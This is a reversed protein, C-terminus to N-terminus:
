RERLADVSAFTSVLYPFLMTLAIQILREFGLARRLIASGHNIGVLLIGVVLAYRVSRRVTSPLTALRLWERVISPDESIDM